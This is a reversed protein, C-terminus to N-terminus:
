FVLVLLRFVAGRGPESDIELKMGLERAIGHAISLGLGTGKGVEKTTFFPELCRAKVESTMGTGNDAVEVVVQKTSNQFLRVWVQPSYNSDQEAKKSVAYRANSLFNVMIQEFKHLDTKIQPLGAELKEQLNIGNAKFQERFFSLSNEM